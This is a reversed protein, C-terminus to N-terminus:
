YMSRLNTCNKFAKDWIIQISDPLDISVLDTNWEFASPGIETVTKGEVTEPITISSASGTYGVVRLSTESIILYMIGDSEFPEELNDEITTPTDPYANQIQVGDSSVRYWVNHVGATDFTVEINWDKCSAWLDMSDDNADFVWQGIVEEGEMAYLYNAALNTTVFIEVPENVTGTEPQILTIIDHREVTAAEPSFARGTNEGDKSAKYWVYYDGPDDFTYRLDWIKCSAATEIGVCGEDDASFIMEIDEPYHPIYMHVHEMELSTTVYIKAPENEFIRDYYEVAIVDPRKVTLAPKRANGSEVNYAKSTQQGDSATFWLLFNGPEQFPYQGEAYDTPKLYGHWYKYNNETVVEVGDTGATWVAIPGDGLCIQVSTMDVNTDIGIEVVTNETAPGFWWDIVPPRTIFVHSDLQEGYDQGDKSAQFSPYYDGFEEFTYTVMIEQNSANSDTVVWDAETWVASQGSGSMKVSQTDLGTTIYIQTEETEITNWYWVGSVFATSNGEALPDEIIPEDADPEDADPEDADPEDADPEDADPEDADPEDADPEDADPEDADPEDADPEDADPEDTDPEDADPEDANPEDADPEDADPEDTDPEDADPEDTDPEDADPEDADPEDADPEDADPEDADHEDADPEDADPEDADPEDADPEDADPEDADPEDADPEDADPEDADPENTVAEEQHLKIQIVPIRVENVLRGTKLEIDEWTVDKIKIYGGLCNEQDKSEETDFTIRILKAGDSKTEVVRGYVICDNSMEAYLRTMDYDRYIKTNEKVKLYGATQETDPEDTDPEDTDPEDTDPEDTDPEDTDPEDTDPEDTDPEDTSPEDTDPEDTDPEDTSPEDTDPKDTDPEDTDPENAAPENAAPENAAPENAAPENAAPENAAPENAAPENAAPENATPENAAPENAAPENAAPENAAPENAAPENAAPENAAPKEVSTNESGANEVVPTEEAPATIGSGEAIMVSPVIMNVILCLALLIGWFRKKNM